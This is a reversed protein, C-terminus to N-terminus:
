IAPVQIHHWQHM